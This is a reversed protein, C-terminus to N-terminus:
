NADLVSFVTAGSLQTLIQQVAPLPYRESCVNKNLKTLDVSICVKDNQKLAVVLGACWETPEEIKEIVGLQEMRILEKKVQPLLPIAVQCPIM